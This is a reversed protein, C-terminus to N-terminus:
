QEYNEGELDLENGIFLNNIKLENCLDCLIAYCVREWPMLHCEYRCAVNTTEGCMECTAGDTRYVGRGFCGVAHGDNCNPCKSPMWM